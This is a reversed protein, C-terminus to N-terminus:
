EILLHEVVGLVQWQAAHYRRRGYFTPACCGCAAPQFIGLDRAGACEFLVVDGAAPRADTDVVLQSGVPWGLPSLNNHTLTEIKM